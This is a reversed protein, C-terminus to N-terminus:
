LFEFEFELPKTQPHCYYVVVIPTCVRIAHAFRLLIGKTYDVLCISCLSDNTIKRGYRAGIVSDNMVIEDWREMTDNRDCFLAPSLM